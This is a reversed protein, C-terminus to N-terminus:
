INENRITEITNQKKIRNISYKMICTILLFVVLISIIIAGFPLNFKSEVSKGISNYIFYSLCCGIPIGFILSKSGMFISELRIMHNFERTTMGISKLMAFETKRLEMNTTITNFINTIGILSIVIIFGYLFIGILLYFNKMMRVSEDLNFSSYDINGFIKEIENLVYTADDVDYYIYAYNYDLIKDFTSDSVILYQNDDLGFPIENTTYAISVDLKKDDNLLTIKDGKQNKYVRDKYHIEEDNKDFMYFETYDILIGKDYVDDYNLGLSEVYKKFQYDGVSSVNIYIDDVDESYGIELLKDTYKLGKSELSYTRTISYDKIGDILTTEKVMRKINEDKIDLDVSVNYKSVKIEDKITDFALNMFYTLAIFVSVSVIISIVTTRYKKKNRKLNKYSIDGGIGFIKSIFLLFELHM